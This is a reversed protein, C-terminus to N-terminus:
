MTDPLPSHSQALVASIKKLMSFRGGSKGVSSASMLNSRMSKTTGKSQKLSTSNEEGEARLTTTVGDSEMAVLLDREAIDDEVKGFNRLLDRDQQSIIVKVGDNELRKLFLLQMRRESQEKKRQEYANIYDNVKDTKKVQVVPRKKSPSLTRNPREQENIRFFMDMKDHFKVKSSDFPM